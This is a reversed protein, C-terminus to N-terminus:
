GLWAYLLLAIAAFAALGVAAANVILLWRLTRASGVGNGPNAAAPESAPAQQKGDGNWGIASALTGTIFQNLSTGEREALEALAGHLSGPMRLLLRGSPDSGGRARSPAPPREAPQASVLPTYSEYPTGSLASGHSRAWTPGIETRLKGLSQELLRSVHVQSLGLETAIRRQSLGGFYSLGVIRRERRALRRLGREILVREEGLELRREAAPDRAPRRRSISRCRESSRRKRPAPLVCCTRATACTDGSRVWSRRSRTPSWRRAAARTTANVAKILGVAGVQVLDDFQEGQRAFRSALVRVLPLHRRDTGDHTSTM